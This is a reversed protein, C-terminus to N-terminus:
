RSAGALDAQVPGGGPDDELLRETVVVLGRDLQVLRQVPREVVRLDEPDVMEEALLRDLVDEGQAEGVTEVLREPVAGVDLEYLDVHRLRQRDALAGAEVLPGAGIAVHDDGVQQLQEAVDRHLRRHRERRLRQVLLLVLDHLRDPHDLGFLDDAALVLAIEVLVSNRRLGVGLGEDRDLDLDVVPAPGPHRDVQPGALAHGFGPVHDREVEALRRHPHERGLDLMLAGVLEDELEGLGARDGGVELGLDRARRHLEARGAHDEAVVLREQGLILELGVLPQDVVRHEAVAGQERVGLPDLAEPRDAGVHELVRTRHM